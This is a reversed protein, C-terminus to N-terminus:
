SEQKPVPPLVPRPLLGGSALMANTTRRQLELLDILTMAKQRLRDLDKTERVESRMIEFQLRAELSLPPVDAM